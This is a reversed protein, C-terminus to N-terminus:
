VDRVGGISAILLPSRLRRKGIRNFNCVEEVDGQVVEGSACVVRLDMASCAKRGNTIKYCFLVCRKVRRWGNAAGQSRSPTMKARLFPELVTLGRFGKPGLPKLGDFVHPPSEGHRLGPPPRLQGPQVHQEAQQHHKDVGGGVRHGNQVLQAPLVGQDQDGLPQGEHGDGAEKQEAAHLQSQGPCPGLGQGGVPLAPGPVDQQGVQQRRRDVVQGENLQAPEGERQPVEGAIQDGAAQGGGEIEEDGQELEDQQGGQELPQGPAPRRHQQEGEGQAKGPDAAHVEIGDELEKHGRGGEGVGVPDKGAVQKIVQGAAADPDPVLVEQVQQRVVPSQDGGQKGEEGAGVPPDAQQGEGTAPAGGVQLQDVGQVDDAGDQKQVGQGGPGGRGRQAAAM